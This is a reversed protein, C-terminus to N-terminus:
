VKFGFYNRKGSRSRTQKKKKKGDWDKQEGAKCAPEAILEKAYPVAIRDRPDDICDMSNISASRMSNKESSMHDTRLTEKSDERRVAGAGGRTPGDDDVLDRLADM